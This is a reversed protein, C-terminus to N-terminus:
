AGTDGIEALTACQISMRRDLMQSVNTTIHKRKRCTKKRGSKPSKFSKQCGHQSWTQMIKGGKQMVKELTSKADNKTLNKM